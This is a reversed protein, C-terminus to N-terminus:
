DEYEFDTICRKIDELEFGRSMAFRILKGNLEYADKARISKRKTVLINRLVELYEENEIEHMFRASVTPSIKKLALSYSIKKKGWKSFRFKDKVYARCFREEDIYKENELKDLVRKMEDLPVSWKYLKEQMDFRCYESTSCMAALKNFAEEETMM